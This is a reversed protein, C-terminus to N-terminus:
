EGQPGYVRNMKWPSKVRPIDYETRPLERCYRKNKWGARIKACEREIEEVTPMYVEYIAM